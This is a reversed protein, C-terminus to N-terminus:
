GILSMLNIWGPRLPQTPAAKKTGPGTNAGVATGAEGDSATDAGTDTGAAAEGESVTMSGAGHEDANGAADEALAARADARLDNADAEIGVEALALSALRAADREGDNLARIIAVAVTVQLAKDSVGLKRDAAAYAESMIRMTDDDYLPEAKEGM